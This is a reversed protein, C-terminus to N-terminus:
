PQLCAMGNLIEKSLSVVLCAGDDDDVVASYFSEHKCYHLWFGEFGNVYLPVPKFTSGGLVLELVLPFLTRVVTCVIVAFMM